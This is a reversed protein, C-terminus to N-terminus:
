KKLLNHEQMYLELHHKSRFFGGKSKLYLMRFTQPTILEKRQLERLIWRQKRVRYIWRRKLNFRANSTGKRSGHGRQRKKKRQQARHVARGRSIGRAPVATIIGQHVLKRIDAKTIAEKIEKLHESSFVVRKPSCGLVASALRKQITHEM